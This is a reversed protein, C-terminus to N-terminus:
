HHKITKVLDTKLKTFEVGKAAPLVSIIYPSLDRDLTRIIEKVQRKLKNRVVAKKSVKKSVRVWVKNKPRNAKILRFYKM